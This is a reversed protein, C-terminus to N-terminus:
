QVISAGFLIPRASTLALTALIFSEVPNPQLNIVTHYIHGRSPLIGFLNGSIRRGGNHRYNYVGRETTLNQQLYLKVMNPKLDFADDGILVFPISQIGGPLYRPSPLSLKNNELAKSFRCKNRVCGDNDRGNTGVGAYLCEYSPGAIAM